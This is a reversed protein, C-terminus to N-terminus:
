ECKPEFSSITASTRFLATSVTKASTRLKQMATQRRMKRWAFWEHRIPLPSVVGTHPRIPTCPSRRSVRRALVKRLVASLSPETLSSDPSLTCQFMM